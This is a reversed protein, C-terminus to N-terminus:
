RFQLENQLRLAHVKTTLNHGSQLLVVQSSKGNKGSLKQALKPHIVRDNTGFVLMPHIQYRRIKNRVDKLNPTLMKFMIWTNLVRERKPKTDLQFTVFEHVKKHMLGLSSVLRSLLFVPQPFRIILGFLERGALTNTVLWYLPNVKLGDPAILLAQNIRGPALEIMKLVIKGGLSFGALSCSSVDHERVVTSILDAVNSITLYRGKMETQGHLPLDFSLIRAQPRLTQMFHFMAEAEQGYGHFALWLEDGKGSDLYSWRTRGIQLSKRM